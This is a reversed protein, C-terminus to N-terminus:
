RILLVLKVAAPVAEVTVRDPQVVEPVVLIQSIILCIFSNKMLPAVVVM